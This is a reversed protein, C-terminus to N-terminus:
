NPAPRLPMVCRFGTQAYESRRPSTPRSYGRQAANASNDPSDYAGGRIVRYQALSDPLPPAGPYARVPSSTWEWANGILDFIGLPSRGTPFSEVPAPANRGLSLTNAAGSLWSAGWPYLYAHPGRAAAEWEEETPLRGGDKHRWGCYGTAEAWAVGTVPLLSDPVSTWPAPAGTAQAFARYEGVTVEHVEMGFSDVRVAHVPRSLRTLPTGDDRGITYAGGPVIAMGADARPLPAAERGLLVWFVGVMVLAAVGVGATVTVNWRRRARQVRRVIEATPHGGSSPTAGGLARVVEGATQFRDEPDQAMCGLIVDNLAAPVDPRVQTLDPPPGAIRKMMVATPTPGEFPPHGALMEYGMVGLAYIDARHDSKTGAVQEPSLYQPTGVVMGSATLSSAEATRAIGFDTVLARGTEAQLLVNQPKIDRHTVGRKHAHELASAVERMLRAVEEAPLRGERQLRDALTEGEVCEMSLYVLDDKQGIFHLPVIHPHSLQAVTEAERRFRELVTRSAILDPSLVKVALKRKLSKDRVLYVVAFGGSGLPREVTYSDGIADQLLRALDDVPPPRPTVVGDPPTLAGTAVAREGAAIAYSCTPCVAAGSPLPTGCQPCNM